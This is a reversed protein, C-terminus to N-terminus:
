IRKLQKTYVPAGILDVSNWRGSPPGTLAEHLEVMYTVEADDGMDVM